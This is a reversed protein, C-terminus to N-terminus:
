ENKNRVYVWAYSYENHSPSPLNITGLWYCRNSLFYAKITNPNSFSTFRDVPITSDAPDIRQTDLGTKFGVCVIGNNQSYQLLKILGDLIEDIPLHIICLNSWVLHAKGLNQFISENRFDGKYVTLGRDNCMDVMGKSLDCGTTSVKKGQKSLIKKFKLLDNGAGCGIDTIKLENEDIFFKNLYFVALDFMPDGIESFTRNRKHEYKNEGLTFGNGKDDETINSLIDYQKEIDSNDRYM